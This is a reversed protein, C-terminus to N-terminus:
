FSPNTFHDSNYSGLNQEGGTKRHAPHKNKNYSYREIFDM